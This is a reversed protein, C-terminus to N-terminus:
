WLPLVAAVEAVLEASAQAHARHRVPHHAKRPRPLLSRPGKPAAKELPREDPPHWLPELAAPPPPLAPRANRRVGALRAGERARPGSRGQAEHPRASATPTAARGRRRASPRAAAEERAKPAGAARGACAWRPRGPGWRRRQGEGSSALRTYQTRAAKCGRQRDARLGIQRARATCPISRKFPMRVMRPLLSGSDITPEPHRLDAALTTPM